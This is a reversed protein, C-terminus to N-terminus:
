ERLEIATSVSLSFFRLSTVALVRLRGYRTGIFHFSILLLCKCILASTSRFVARLRIISFGKRLDGTKM